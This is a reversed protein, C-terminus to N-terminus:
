DGFRSCAKKWKCQTCWLDRHEMGYVKRCKKTDGRVKRTPSSPLKGSLPASAYSLKMYKLPSHAGSSTSPASFSWPSYTQHYNNVKPILIPGPGGGGSSHSSYLCASSPVVLGPKSLNKQYEPDEMPPRCMDMHSMTPPSNSLDFEVETYYFEEEHDSLDSDDDDETGIREKKPGLKLHSQRVHDEVTSLSSTVFYCKPWTCQYVHSSSSSSSSSSKDNLGCGSSSNSIPSSSQFKKKKPLEQEFDGGDDMDIGEDLTTASGMWDSLPPSPTSSRWSVGGDSFSPSPSPPEVWGPLGTISPSHPSGSLKMLVLAATCENMEEKYEDQSTSTRRKRSGQQPAVSPVDIHQSSSTSTGTTRKRDTGVDALRAFDTDQDMLRASKRSELLRVEELRKKMEIVGEYGPPCILVSVEDMNVDHQVIDGSIERGNFTLYVKQGPLLHFNQVSQFGPGILETDRYERNWAAGQPLPPDFRISYKMGVTTFIDSCNSPTKVAHIVGSYFKGDDGPACVRTGIISRKAIRKGTSM